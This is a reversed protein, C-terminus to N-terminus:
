GFLLPLLPFAYCVADIALLLVAVLWQGIQRFTVYRITVIPQIVPLNLLLFLWLFRGFLLFSQNSRTDLFIVKCALLLLAALHTATPISQVPLCM